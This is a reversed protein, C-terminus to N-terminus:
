GGLAKRIVASYEKITDDSLSATNKWLADDTLAKLAKVAESNDNAPEDSAADDGVTGYTEPDDNAAAVGHGFGQDYIEIAFAEFDLAELRGFKSTRYINEAIERPNFPNYNSGM